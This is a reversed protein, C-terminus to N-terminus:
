YFRYSQTVIKLDYKSSGHEIRLAPLSKEIKLNIFFIHLRQPVKIHLLHEHTM